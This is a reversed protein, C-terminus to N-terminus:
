GHIEGRTQQIHRSDCNMCRYNFTRSTSEAVELVWRHECGIEPFISRMLIWSPEDSWHRLNSMIFENNRAANFLPASVYIDSYLHVYQRPIGAPIRTRQNQERKAVVEHLFESM